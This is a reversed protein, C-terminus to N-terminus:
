DPPVASFGFSQNKSKTIWWGFVGKTPKPDESIPCKPSELGLQQRGVLVEQLEDTTHERPQHAM